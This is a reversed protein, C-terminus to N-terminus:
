KSLRIAWIEAKNNKPNDYVSGQIVNYIWASTTGKLNCTWYDNKFFNIFPHGFLGNTKDESNHLTQLQKSSPMAWDTFGYNAKTGSNMEDVWTKAQEWTRDGEDFISDSGKSMLANQPWMFGTKKDLVVGPHGAVGIFRYDAKVNVKASNSHQGFLAVAAQWRIKKGEGPAVIKFDGIMRQSKPSVVSFDTGNAAFELEVFIEGDGGHSLDYTVVIWNGEQNAKVNSVIIPGSAIASSFNLIIYLLLFLLNIKNKIM